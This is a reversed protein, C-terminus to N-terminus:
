ENLVVSVVYTESTKAEEINMAEARKKLEEDSLTEAGKM